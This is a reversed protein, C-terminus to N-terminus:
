EEKWKRSVEKEVLRDEKLDSNWDNENKLQEIEEASFHNLVIQVVDMESMLYSISYESEYESYLVNLNPYYRVTSETSSQAILIAFLCTYSDEDNDYWTSKIDEGYIYLKRGYSDEEVLECCVEFGGVARPLCHMAMTYCEPYDGYYQSFDVGECSNLLMCVLLLIPLIFRTNKIFATM